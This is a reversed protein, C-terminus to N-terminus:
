TICFKTKLDDLVTKRKAIVDEDENQKWKWQKSTKNM